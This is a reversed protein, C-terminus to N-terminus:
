CKGGKNVINDVLEAWGRINFTSSKVMNFHQFTSSRDINFHQGKQLTSINFHQAKAVSGVAVGQAGEEGQAYLM